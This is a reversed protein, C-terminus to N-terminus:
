LFVKYSVKLVKSLKQAMRKGITRKGHEMESIHNQPIGLEDALQKQTMTERLRAGRLLAGVKSHKRNLDSFLSEAAVSDGVEFEQILCVLGKAKEEPVLFERRRNKGIAITVSRVRTPLKKTLASM